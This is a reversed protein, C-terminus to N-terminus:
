GGRLMTAQQTRLVRPWLRRFRQRLLLEHEVELAFLKGLVFGSHGDVEPTASMTTLTRQAVAADQHEGLLDTVDELAKALPTVESGFVAAVAEASYRAKKAAIRAEHWQEAPSDVRLPTVDDRLRHWPADMLPPLAQRCSQQAARSFPIDRMGTVLATLLDLYRQSRLTTLARERADDMRPTLFAHVTARAEHAEVAPLEGAREDLREIMVETDRIGGLQSALWGLERRLHKAWHKDLLHRFTQLGSRIRRSAVRMQHVSDPLDRRFRLDQLLLRRTHRTFHAQVAASAPEDPTPADTEVVDPEDAARPGLAATV